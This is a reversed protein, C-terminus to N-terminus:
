HPTKWEKQNCTRKKGGWRLHKQVEQHKLKTAVKTPHVEMTPIKHSETSHDRQDGQRSARPKGETQTPERTTSPIKGKQTEKTPPKEGEAPISINM